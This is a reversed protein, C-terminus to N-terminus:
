LCDSTHQLVQPMARRCSPCHLHTAGPSAPRRCTPLRGPGQRRPPCPTPCTQRRRWGRSPSCRPLCPCVSKNCLDLMSMWYLMAWAEAEWDVMDVTQSRGLPMAVASWRGHLNVVISVFGATVKGSAVLEAIGAEREEELTRSSTLRAVLALGQQGAVLGGVAEFM